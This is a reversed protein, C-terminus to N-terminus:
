GRNNGLRLVRNIKLTDSCVSKEKKAQLQYFWYFLVFKAPCSFLCTPAVIREIYPSMLAHPNAFPSPLALLFATRRRLHSLSVAWSVKKKKKPRDRRLKM